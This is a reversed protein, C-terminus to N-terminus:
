IGYKSLAIKGLSLEKIPILSGARVQVMILFFRLALDAPGTDGMRWFNDERGASFNAGESSRGAQAM